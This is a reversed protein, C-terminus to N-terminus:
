GTVRPHFHYRPRLRDADANSQGKAQASQFRLWRSLREFLTRRESEVQFPVNFSLEGFELTDVRIFVDKQPPIHGKISLTYPTRTSLPYPNECRVSDLRTEVGDAATLSIGATPLPQGDVSVFLGTVKVPALNNLITLSFGLPDLSKLSGPDILKRLLFEPIAM